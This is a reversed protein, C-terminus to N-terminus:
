ANWSWQSFVSGMICVNYINHNNLTCFDVADQLRHSMKGVPQYLLKDTQTEDIRQFNWLFDM